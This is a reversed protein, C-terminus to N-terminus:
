FPRRLAYYKTMWKERTAAKLKEAGAIVYRTFQFDEPDGHNAYGNLFTDTGFIVTAQTDYVLEPIVKYHLPSPYLFTRIGSSMPLVLGVGLGFSHFVPLANFFRDKPSFDLCSKVQAQNSLLNRHSLIVGKPAGESGSTFLIVAAEDASPQQKQLGFRATVRIMGLLKDGISIQEKVDELYIVSAKKELQKALPELQGLEIFKRSTLVTNINATILASFISEAGLTFNLMAPIVGQSQLAYFTVATPVANPLMMGVNEGQAVYKRLVKGLVLSGLLVQRLTIPNRQLDELVEHKGGYINLANCLSKFLTCDVDSTAYMMKTMIDYIAVRLATNRASVRVEKNV